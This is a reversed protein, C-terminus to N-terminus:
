RQKFITLELKDKRVFSRIIDRPSPAAHHRHHWSRPWGGESGDEEAEMEGARNLMQLRLKKHPSATERERERGGEREHRRGGGEREHRAPMRLPLDLCGRGNRRAAVNRACPLPPPPACPRGRSATRRARVCPAGLRAGDQLADGGQQSSAPDDVRGRAACPPPEPTPPAAGWPSPLARRVPTGAPLPLSPGVPARGGARTSGARHTPHACCAAAADARLSAEGGRSGRAAAQAFRAPLIAPM